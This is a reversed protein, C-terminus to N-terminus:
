LRDATPCCRIGEMLIVFAGRLPLRARFTRLARIASDGPSARVVAGQLVGRAISCDGSPISLASLLWPHSCGPRRSVGPGAPHSLRRHRRQGPVRWPAGKEMPLRPNSGSAKGRWIAGLLSAEAPTIQPRARRSALRQLQATRGCAGWPWRRASSPVGGPSGALPREPLGPERTRDAPQRQVKM